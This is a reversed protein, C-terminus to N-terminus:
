RIGGSSGERLGSTKWFVMSKTSSNFGLVL